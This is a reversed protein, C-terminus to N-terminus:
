LQQFKAFPVGIGGSALKGQRTTPQAPQRISTEASGRMLCLLRMCANIKLHQQGSIPKCGLFSARSQM